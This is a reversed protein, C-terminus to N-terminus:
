RLLAVVTHRHVNAQASVAQYTTTFNVNGMNSVTDLKGEITEIDGLRSQAKVQVMQKALEGQYAKIDDLSQQVQRLHQNVKGVTYRIGDRNGLNVALDEVGEPEPQLKVVNPQGAPYRHGQGTVMVQQQMQNFDADKARFILDGEQTAAARMGLPILSRDIQDVLQKDDMQSNFNIMVTGTQPFDLRIQENQHRQRSLNLGPVTFTRAAGQELQVRLQSDLVRGGDSTASELWQKISQQKSAVQQATDPSAPQNSKLAQTLVKKMSILERGVHQLTQHAIQVTTVQQQGKALLTKSVSYAGQPLSAYQQSTASHPVRAKDAVMPPAITTKGQGTLRVGQQRVEVTSSVM